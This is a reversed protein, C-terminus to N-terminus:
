FFIEVTTPVPEPGSVKQIQYRKGLEKAQVSNLGKEMVVWYERDAEIHLHVEDGSGLGKVKIYKETGQTTFWPSNHSTSCALM